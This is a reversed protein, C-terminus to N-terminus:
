TRVSSVPISGPDLKSLPRPRKLRPDPADGDPPSPRGPRTSGSTAPRALLELMSELKADEPSELRTDAPRRELERRHRLPKERHQRKARSLREGGLRQDLRHPVALRGRGRRTDEPDIDRLKPTRERGPPEEAIPDAVPERDRLSLEVGLAELVQEGVAPLRERICVVAQGLREERTREIEPPAIREGSQAALQERALLRQPQVLEPQLADLQTELGSQPEAPVLLEDGIELPEDDLMREALTQPGLEHRRQVPRAPLRVREGAVAVPARVEVGLEPELRSRLEPLELAPDEAM